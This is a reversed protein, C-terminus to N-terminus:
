DDSQQCSCDKRPILKLEPIMVFRNWVNVLEHSINRYRKAKQWLKGSDSRTIPVVCDGAWRGVLVKSDTKVMDDDTDGGARKSRKSCIFLLLTFVALESYAARKSVEAGGNVCLECVVERKSRNVAKFYQGMAFLPFSISHGDVIFLRNWLLLGRSDGDRSSQRTVM